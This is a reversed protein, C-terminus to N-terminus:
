PNLWLHSFWYYRGPQDSPATCNYRSRGPPLAQPAQLEFHRAARDRWQVEVRGQGSVFCSLQGLRATSEGLRISLRPASTEALSLRGLQPEWPEVELLPFALSQVKQRFDPLAAFAEAMPFRPLARSDAGLGIPGSQQGFAVLGMERVLAALATNYEGYPYAFLTPTEGLEEGIRRQARALDARLRARWQQQTEEPLLRVLYDHTASHNEFRAGHAQMERMQQWNMYAKFGRDVGETAVFVTFPWGRKKLRPYAETYVSKYADDITIAVVRAPFPRRAVVYEVVRTLPWVEYGAETLYDLHADFQALRVNTSPHEQVGFHHYMLVVAQSEEAQAAPALLPLLAALLIGGLYKRMATKM